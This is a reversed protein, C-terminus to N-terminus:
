SASEVSQPQRNTGIQEASPRRRSIEQKARKFRLWSMSALRAPMHSGTLLLVLHLMSHPQLLRSPTSLASSRGRCRGQGWQGAGQIQVTCVCACSNHSPPCCFPLLASTFCYYPNASGCSGPALPQPWTLHHAHHASMHPGEELGGRMQKSGIELQSRRRKEALAHSVYFNRVVRRVAPWVDSRLPPRGLRWLPWLHHGAKASSTLRNRAAAAAVARSCPRRSGSGGAM